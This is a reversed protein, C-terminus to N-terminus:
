RLGRVKNETESLASLFIVPIDSLTEDAKIRECVEYGDMEPMNIDLLILDPRQKRAYDLGDAGNPKWAVDFGDRAQRPEFERGVLHVDGDHRAADVEVGHPRADELRHRREAEQLPVPPRVREGLPVVQRPRM